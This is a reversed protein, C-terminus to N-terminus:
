TTERLWEAHEMVFAYLSAPSKSYSHQGQWNGDIHHATEVVHCHGCVAPFLCPLDAKSKRWPREVCWADHGCRPCPWAPHGTATEAEIRDRYSTM